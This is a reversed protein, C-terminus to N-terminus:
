FNLIQKSNTAYLRQDFVSLFLYIDGLKRESNDKVKAYTFIYTGYQCYGCGKPSYKIKTGKPKKVEVALPLMFFLNMFKIDTLRLREFFHKTFAIPKNILM